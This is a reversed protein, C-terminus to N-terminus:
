GTLAESKRDKFDIIFGRDKETIEQFFGQFGADIFSNKVFEYEEKSVMRNIEDFLNAKYLPRYQAMLSIYVDQPDFTSKLFNLLSASAAMENPLVLHRICLGHYAIGESDIKLSGVQRFMARIATQNAEVYDAAKSFRQASIANGYKMDPLYIDIIGHLASIASESEYGSCNYVIPITLGRRSATKLASIVWPLFHTATVLNINHCGKKQLGLMEDALEEISYTKGEFEHSIQYNQCFCCQLTCYSFFVTGSGHTGSIPPEEGHHPFISSIVLHGPAGCFGKQEKQRNIGCIRPCLTCNETIAFLKAIRQNWEDETLYVYSADRKSVKNSLIDITM